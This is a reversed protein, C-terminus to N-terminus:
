MHRLIELCNALVTPELAVVYQPYIFGVTLDGFTSVCRAERRVGELTSTLESQQRDKVIQHRTLWVYLNGRQGMPGM